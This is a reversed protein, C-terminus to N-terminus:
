VHSYTLDEVTAGTPKGDKTAVKTQDKTPAMSTPTPVTPAESPEFDVNPTTSPSEVPGATPEPVATLEGDAPALLKRPCCWV